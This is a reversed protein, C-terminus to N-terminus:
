GYSFEIPCPFYGAYATRMATLGRRHYGLFIVAQIGRLPWQRLSLNGNGCAM